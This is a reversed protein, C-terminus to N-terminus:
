CAARRLARPEPVPTGPRDTAVVRHGHALLEDVLYAGVCGAAGTVLVTQPAPPASATNTTTRQTM